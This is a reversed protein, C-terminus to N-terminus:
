YLGQPKIGCALVCPGDKLYIARTTLVIALSRAHEVCFRNQAGFYSRTNREQLVAVPVLYYILESLIYYNDACPSVM